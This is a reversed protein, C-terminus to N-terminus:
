EFLESHSGTREFIIMNNAKDLKYILLWDFGIHCERRDKYDGILQHDKYKKDLPEGNILKTLVAKLKSLDKSGSRKLRKIDREFQKTYVPKYM